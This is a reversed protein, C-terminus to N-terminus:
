SLFIRHLLGTPPRTLSLVGRPALQCLIKKYFWLFRNKPVDYIEWTYTFTVLKTELTKSLHSLNNYYIFDLCYVNKKM